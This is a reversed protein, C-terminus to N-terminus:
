VFKTQMFPVILICRFTVYSYLLADSILRM